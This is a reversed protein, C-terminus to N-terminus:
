PDISSSLAAMFEMNILNSTLQNVGVTKFRLSKELTHSTTSVTMSTSLLLEGCNLTDLDAVLPLTCRLVTRLGRMVTRNRNEVVAAGNHDYGETRTPWLLRDRLYERLPGILSPECDSHVRALKFEGPPFMLAIRMECEKFADIADAGSHSKVPQYWSVSQKDKRSAVVVGLIATNGDNDPPLGTIYDVGAVHGRSEGRRQADPKLRTAPKRTMQLGCGDCDIPDAPRHGRKRHLM